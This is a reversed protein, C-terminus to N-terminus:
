FLTVHQSPVRRFAYPTSKYHREDPKFEGRYLIAPLNNVGTDTGGGFCGTGGDRLEIVRVYPLRDFKKLLDDVHEGNCIRMQLELDCIVECCMGDGVCKCMERMEQETRYEWCHEFIYTEILCPYQDTNNQAIKNSDEFREWLLRGKSGAEKCKRHIEEKNEEIVNRDIRFWKGVELKSSIEEKSTKMNLFREYDKVLEELPMLKGNSLQVQLEKASKKVFVNLM